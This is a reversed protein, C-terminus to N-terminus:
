RTQMTRVIHRYYAYGLSRCWPCTINGWRIRTYRTRRWRDDPWHDQVQDTRDLHPSHAVRDGRGTAELYDECCLTTMDPVVIHVIGTPDPRARGTGRDARPLLNLLDPTM